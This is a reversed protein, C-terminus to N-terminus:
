DENLRREVEFLCNDDIKIDPMEKSLFEVYVEVDAWKETRLVKAGDTTLIELFSYRTHTPLQNRRGFVGLRAGLPLTYNFRVLSPGKQRMQVIWHSYPAVQFETRRGLVLETFSLISPSLSASSPKFSSPSETVAPAPYFVGFM